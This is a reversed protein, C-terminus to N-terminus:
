TRTVVLGAPFRGNGGSRTCALFYTEGTRHAELGGATWPATSTRLKYANFGKDTGNPGARERGHGLYLTVTDDAHGPLTWVAASLERGGLKLREEALLLRRGPQM